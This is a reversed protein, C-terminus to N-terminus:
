RIITIDGKLKMLEGNECFAEVTYVYVDPPLVSGNFTGDWGDNKDNVNANTREFMIEGWRNYVRFSKLTSIGNGRVMFIDNVGDGNPTFTNPIFLQSEDCLVSITVDTSDVCDYRSFVKVTYITTKFPSAVPDACDSCSLTSSPSWEFRIINDGSALLDASTGAVIEGGGRVSVTPKPHVTVKVNSTDPICRGEYAVVTYVTNEGPSVVPASSRYDDINEKPSWEYSVAGSVSLTMYEGQCIEGGNGVISEVHTKIDVEVQTTDFCGNIDTGIVTYVTTEKPFAYPDNCNSCSLTTAPSWVYSVGGSPVLHASDTLCIITDGGANIEKPENITINKEISDICGRSNSVRLSVKYEGPPGYKRKPDKLASFSGDEFGWNNITIPADVSTSKNIFEVLSNQCAPGTEFDATVDDVIITDVGDSSASCGKNNNFIMRPVYKGPVTYTYSVNPQTSSGLLTNGDGFDWVITPIQGKVDSKFNVTLPACGEAPDYSFAGAYGLVQINKTTSDKCGNVDTVVLKVTYNKVNTYVVTHKNKFGKGAGDDFDWELSNARVSSSGDFNVILPACVAMTDSATFNAIPKTATITVDVSTDLCGLTDTITLRTIYTGLTDYTHTVDGAVISTDGDGFEWRYKVGGNSVDEFQVLGGVCVTQAVNYDASPKLVNIYQPKTITAECGFNDRVTLTVDYVGKQAYLKTSTATSTRLSDSPSTGYEWLRSVISTNGPQPKSQDTFTITGPECISTKDAVFEPDPRAVTIWDTKTVTDKCRDADESVVEITYRGPNPFIHTYDGVTNAQVLTGNVYYHFGYFNISDKTLWAHFFVSDGSCLTTKNSIVDVPNDGLYIQEFTTDRCFTTDNYTALMVNYFGPSGYTHTPNFATSTNGDGFDWFVSTAGISINTFSVELRNQCNIMKGFMACPPAIKVTDEYTLKDQCGNHMTTLTVSFTDTCTYRHVVTTDDGVRTVKTGDGLDWVYILTDPGTSTATFTVTKKSCIESPVMKFSSNPKNGVQLLITDRITCNNNTIVEVIAAYHGTDVYVHTVPLVSQTTTNGDGFDWYVSKVGYPYQTGFESFIKPDFSASFSVCGSDTFGPKKNSKGNLETEIYLGYIKFDRKLTDKCGNATEVYVIATYKGTDTYTISPNASSSTTTGGGSLDITWDTNVMSPDVTFTVTQPPPCLSDPSIKIQANVRPRIYIDKTATDACNASVTILRVTYLGPATYMHAGNTATSGNGDGFDWVFGNGTTPNINTFNVTTYLCATDPGSFSADPQHLKIYSNKTVTEECGNSSKVTLEVNYQAPAPGNYTHTPSTATSTPNGAGGFKWAYTYPGPASGSVSPTFTVTGPAGCFDTQSATFNVTPKSSVDIYQPKTVTSECGKSNIVTLTVNNPGSTYVASPNKQTSTGPTAGSGLVWTYTVSGSVGPNSTNNFNVNLPPCGNLPSASFSATPSAFVTIYNTKTEVNTGNSSTVRHKVTYTGVATYSRSPSTANNNIWGGGNGFDWSHTLGSSSDAVKFHVLLPSCGSTGNTATFGANQAYSPLALNALFLIAFLKIFKM